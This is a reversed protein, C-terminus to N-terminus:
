PIAGRSQMITRFNQWRRILEKLEKLEQKVMLYDEFEAKTLGTECGKAEIKRISHELNSIIKRIRELNM